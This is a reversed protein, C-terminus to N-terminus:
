HIQQFKNTRQDNIQDKSLKGIPVYFDLESIPNNTMNESELHSFSCSGIGVIVGLIYFFLFGALVAPETIRLLLQKTKSQM